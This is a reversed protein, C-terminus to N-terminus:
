IYFDCWKLKKNQEQARKSYIYKMFNLKQGWITHVANNHSRSIETDSLLGKLHDYSMFKASLVSSDIKVSAYVNEIYIGKNVKNEGILYSLGYDERLTLCFVGSIFSMSDNLFGQLNIPSNNKNLVENRVKRLIVQGNEDESWYSGGIGYLAEVALPLGSIGSSVEQTLGFMPLDLPELLSDNIVIICADDSKVDYDESKIYKAFKEKKEKIAATIRWLRYTNNDYIDSPDPNIRKRGDQNHEFIGHKPEPTIVEFWYTKDNKIAKFDPGSDSSSLIFGDRILRNSLLMESMAHHYSYSGDDLELQSDFKSDALGSVKFTTYISDLFNVANLNDLTDKLEPYRLDLAQLWKDRVKSHM